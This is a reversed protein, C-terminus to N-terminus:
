RIANQHIFYKSATDDSFNTKAQFDRLERAHGDLVRLNERMDRASRPLILVDDWSCTLRKVSKACYDTMRGPTRTIPVAHIRQLYNGRRLLRQNAKIFAAMDERQLTWPSELLMGHYHRGDNIQVDWVSRDPWAFIIPLQHMSAESKPHHASRNALVGYFTTISKQMLTVNSSIPKFMFSLGFPIYGRTVYKEVWSSYEFALTQGDIEYHM